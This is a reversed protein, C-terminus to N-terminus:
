SAVAAARYVWNWADTPGGEVGLAELRRRHILWRGNRLQYEDVYRLRAVIVSSDWREHWATAYTLGTAADEATFEIRSQGLQHQTHRFAAQRAVMASFDNGAQPGGNGPGADFVCDETFITSLRPITYNDIQECYYALVDLIRARDALRM